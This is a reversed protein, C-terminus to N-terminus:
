TVLWPNKLPTAAETFYSAPWKLELENLILLSQIQLRGPIDLFFAVAHISCTSHGMIYSLIANKKSCMKYPGICFYCMKAM